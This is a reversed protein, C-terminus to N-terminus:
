PHYLSSPLPMYCDFTVIKKHLVAREGSKRKGAIFWNRNSEDFGARIDAFQFVKRFRSLGSNPRNSGSLPRALSFRAGM